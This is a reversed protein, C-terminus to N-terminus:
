RILAAIVAFLLSLAGISVLLTMKRTNSINKATVVTALLYLLAMHVVILIVYTVLLPVIPTFLTFGASMLPIVSTFYTLFFPTANSGKQALFDSLRMVQWGTFSVLMLGLLIAAAIGGLAGLRLVAASNTAAVVVVILVLSLNIVAWFPLYKPQREIRRREEAERYQQMEDYTKPVPYLSALDVPKKDDNKNQNDM